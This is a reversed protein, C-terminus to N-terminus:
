DASGERPPPTDGSGPERNVKKKFDQSGSINHKKGSEVHLISNIPINQAGSAGAFRLKRVHFCWESNSILGLIWEHNVLKDPAQRRSM